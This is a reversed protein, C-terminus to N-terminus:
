GHARSVSIAIFGAYFTLALVALWLANRRARRQRLESDNAALM